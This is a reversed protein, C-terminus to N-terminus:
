MKSCNLEVPFSPQSGGEEGHFVATGEETVAYLSARQHCAQRIPAFSLSGIATARFTSLGSTAILELCVCGGDKEAM